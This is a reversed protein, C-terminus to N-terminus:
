RSCRRSPPTRSRCSRGWTRAGWAFGLLLLFPRRRRALPDLEEGRDLAATFRRLQVRSLADIVVRALGIAVVWWTDLRLGILAVVVAAIQGSYTM